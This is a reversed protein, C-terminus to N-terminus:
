RLVSLLYEQAKNPMLHLRSILVRANDNRHFVFLGRQTYNLGSVRMPTISYRGTRTLAASDYFNLHSLCGEGNNAGFKSCEINTQEVLAIEGRSISQSFSVIRYSNYSAPPSSLELAGTYRMDLAADTSSHFIVGCATFVSAGDVSLWLDGCMEYDGHYPSDRLLSAAGGSISYRQIKSSSFVAGYIATGDPHLQVRTGSYTSRVPDFILRATNSLIDISYANGYVQEIEHFVHVAGRGDLVLDGVNTSVNLVKTAIASNDLRLYSVLSDHGIAAWLGDPSISVATPTKTLPRRTEAGSAADYIYLAPTPWNSVMVVSNLPKSFEADVVDHTLTVRSAVELSPLGPEMTLARDDGSGSTGTGASGSALVTYRTNVIFPSGKLPQACVSDFCATIVVTDTYVGPGLSLPSRFDLQLRATSGSDQYLQIGSLGIKTSTTDEYVTMGSLGNGRVISYAVPPVGGVTASVAIFNPELQLAGDGASAVDSGGGGCAALMGLALMAVRGLLRLAM